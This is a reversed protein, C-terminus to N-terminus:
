ITLNNNRIYEFSKILSVLFHNVPADSHYKRAINVVEGNLFEIETQRNYIYDQLMSTYNDSRVLSNLKDLNMDIKIGDLAAIRRCEELIQKKLDDLDPQSITRNSVKFILSIPNYICNIILKKWLAKRMDWGTRIKLFGNLSDKFLGSKNIRDEIILSGGYFITDGPEKLTAGFGIIARYIDDADIRGLSWQAFRTRINMGNTTILFRTTSHLKDKLNEIVNKLDYIKVAPIILTDKLSFDVETRLDLSVEKCIVGGIRIQRKGIQKKQKEKILIILKHDLSESLSAALVSGVAGLGIILIKKM